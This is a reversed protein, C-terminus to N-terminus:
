KVLMIMEITDSNLCNQCYYCIDCATNFLQKVGVDSAPISLINKTMLAVTPYSHKIKKWIELSYELIEKDEFLINDDL